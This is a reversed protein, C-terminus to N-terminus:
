WPPGQTVDSVIDCVTRWAEELASSPLVAGHIPVLRDVRLRRDQIAQLPAAATEAFEGGVGPIFMDAQILNGQLVDERTIRNTM